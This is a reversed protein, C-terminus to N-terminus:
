EERTQRWYEILMRINIVTWLAAGSLAGGWSLVLGFFHAAEPNSLPLISDIRDVCWEAGRFVVYVCLSAFGGKINEWIFQRLPHNKWDGQPRRPAM